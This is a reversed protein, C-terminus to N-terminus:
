QAIEEVPAPRWPDVMLKGTHHTNRMKEIAASVAALGITEGLM